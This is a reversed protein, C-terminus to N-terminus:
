GNSAERESSPEETREPQADLHAQFAKAQLARLFVILETHDLSYAKLVALVAASTDWGENLKGILSRQWANLQKKGV